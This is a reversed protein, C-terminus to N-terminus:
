EFEVIGSRDPNHFAGFTVSWASNEFVAKRERTFNM